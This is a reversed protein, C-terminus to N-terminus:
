DWYGLTVGKQYVAVAQVYYGYSNLHTWDARLSVPVKGELVAARDERTADIGAVELGNDILYRRMNIFHKGFADELAREWPTKYTSEAREASDSDGLAARSDVSEDPNDTDGIIIFEDCGSHTIMLNYQEILEEYSHWGGNSGMELILVDGPHEAGQEMIDSDIFSYLTLPKQPELAGQMIAIEESNAGPVGFNYTSMGTLLQLIEPYGLYSINVSSEGITVEARSAGMGSTMSDGWCVIEKQSAAGESGAALRPERSGNCAALLLPLFLFAAFGRKKM